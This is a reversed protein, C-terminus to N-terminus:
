IRICNRDSKEQEGSTSKENKKKIKDRVRWTNRFIQLQGKEGLNKIAKKIQSNQKKEQEEKGM